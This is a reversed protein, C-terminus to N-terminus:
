RGEERKREKGRETSGELFRSFGFHHLTVSSPTMNYSRVRSLLSFDQTTTAYHTHHRYPPFLWLWYTENHYITPSLNTAIPQDRWSEYWSWIPSSCSENDREIERGREQERKRERGRVTQRGRERESQVTRYITSHLIPSDSLLLTAASLALVTCSPSNSCIPSSIYWQLHQVIVWQILSKLDM